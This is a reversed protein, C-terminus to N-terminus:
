KGFNNVLISADIMNVIGDHNLDAQTNNTLYNQLLILLDTGDIRGDGNIDGIPTPTSVPPSPNNSPAITPTIGTTYTFAGIDWGYSNRDVLSAPWSSGTPDLALNYPSGLNVGAGILPSSNLLRLDTWITPSANVLGPVASTDTTSNYGSCSGGYGTITAKDNYGFSNTGSWASIPGCSIDVQNNRIINNYVQFNNVSDPGIGIVLGGVGKNNYITNNYIKHNYGEAFIGGNGNNFILNGYVEHNTAQSSYIHIGYGAIGHFQNLRITKTTTQTQNGGSYIGHDRSNWGDNYFDNDEITLNGRTSDYKLGTSNADYFKSNRIIVDATANLGSYTNWTVRLNEGSCVGNVPQGIPNGYATCGYQPDKKMGEIQFGDFVIQGPKTVLIYAVQTFVGPFGTIATTTDRPPNKDPYTLIVSEGKYNQLTVNKTIYYNTAHQPNFYTTEKYTGGRVLLTDGDKVPTSTSNGQTDWGMARNIGTLANGDTGSCDRNTISYNGSLCDSSLTNDIYYTSGSQAFVSSSTIFLSSYILFSTLSVFVIFRRM